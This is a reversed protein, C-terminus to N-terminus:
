ADRNEQNPQPAGTVGYPQMVGSCRRNSPQPMNCFQGREAEDWSKRGCSMCRFLPPEDAPQCPAVGYTRLHEPVLAPDRSWKCGDEQCGPRQNSGCPCAKPPWTYNTRADAMVGSVHARVTARMVRLRRTAETMNISDSLLYAFSEVVAAASFRGAQPDNLDRSYRLTWEIHPDAKPNPAFMVANGGVKIPLTFQEALSLQPVDVATVHELMERAETATLLNTGIPWWGVKEYAEERTMGNSPKFSIGCDPGFTKPLKWGLFRDVMASIRDKM